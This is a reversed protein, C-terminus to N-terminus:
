ISNKVAKFYEFDQKAFLDRDGKRTCELGIPGSYGIEKLKTLYERHNIEGNCLSTAIRTNGVPSSNKLHVYFIKDGYSEITECLSPPTSFNVTNGYDMNVGLSPCNIMDLLRLTPEPLDHIYWHHTEIAFRMGIKEIAEGFQHFSDATLKWQETTAAYSGCFEVAEQPATPLPSQIISAFCNGLTTGCIDNFQKSTEIADNISKERIEKVPNACEKIGIGFMITKLGYKKKGSAIEKLYDKFPKQSLYQPPNCRFEVGDFGIDSAMKCVSDVTKNKGYTNFSSEAYNVQMITQNMVTEKGHTLNSRQTRDYGM